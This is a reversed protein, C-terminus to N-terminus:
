KIINIEIDVPRIKKKKNLPCISGNELLVAEFNEYDLKMFLDNDFIFVAGGELDEFYVGEPVKRKDIIKIM